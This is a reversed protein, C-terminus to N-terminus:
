GRLFLKETFNGIMKIFEKINLIMVFVSVIIIVTYCRNILPTILSIILFITLSLVTKPYFVKVAVIKKMTAVRIVVMILFSLATAVAAGFIGIRSILLYNVGINVVAGVLTSIFLINTKKASTFASAFFGALSSFVAAVTLMPVYKWAVYFGNNFILKAILKNFIFIFATGCIMVTSILRYMESFYDAFDEDEYSQMASLQWAQTFIGTLMTIITPIKQAIGYIGNDSLGTIWTIMYKDASSNIWWSVSAPIFPVSYKLMKSLLSSNFKFSYKLKYIKARIFMYLDSVAYAIIFSKFYGSLGMKFVTLFIVNSLIFVATYVIGKAAFIRTEGKGKTINSFIGEINTLIFILIFYWKYKELSPFIRCFISSIIIAAVSTFFIFNVSISYIESENANKDYMFRLVAEAIALSFVPIFLSVTTKLVDAQGYENTTLYATYLSVCLFSLIKTGFNGIAFIATDKALSKYRNQTNSIKFVM